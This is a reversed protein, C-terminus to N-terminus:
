FRFAGGGLPFAGAEKWRNYKYNWYKDSSPAESVYVLQVIAPM